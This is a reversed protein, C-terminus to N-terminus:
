VMVEIEIQGEGPMSLSVSSATRTGTFTPAQFVAGPRWPVLSDSLILAIGRGTDYRRVTYDVTVPAETWSSARTLGIPDVHWAQGLLQRLVRSAPGAPRLWFSGLLRDAAGPVVVAEGVEAAADRVVTSLKVGGAARYARENVPRRWGGAGGVLRASQSGAFGGAPARVVAMTLSLDAITLVGSSPLASPDPLEVDATAAGWPPLLVRASTVQLGAFSAFFGM